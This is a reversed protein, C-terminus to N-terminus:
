SRATTCDRPTSRSIRTTTPSAAPRISSTSRSAALRATSCSPSRATTSPSSRRTARRSSTSRKTRGAAARAGRLRGQVIRDRRRRDARAPARGAGRRNDRRCASGGRSRLRGAGRRKASRRCIRPENTAPEAGDRRRPCRTRRPRVEDAATRRRARRRLLLGDARLGRPDAAIGTGDATTMPVHVPTGPKVLAAVRAADWNTLRVCGHSETHGVNGPEPTGHIGYHELSLSSGCSASRTTPAPRSRPRRTPRSRTGSCIAPQLSVAAALAVGRVKFDGPPLPDHESGSTVPAFFVLTGDARTARLASEDKSM